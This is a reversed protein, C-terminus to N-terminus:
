ALGHGFALQTFFAYGRQVLGEVVFGPSEIGGDDAGRRVQELGQGSRSASAPMLRNMSFGSVQVEVAHVLHELGNLALPTIAAPGVGVARVGGEESSSPRWQSPRTPLGTSTTEVQPCCKGNM